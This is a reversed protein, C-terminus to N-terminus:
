APVSYAYVQVGWFAIGVHFGGLASTKLGVEAWGQSTKM